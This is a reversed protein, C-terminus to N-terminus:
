RFLRPKADKKNLLYRISTHDTYIIIEAGVLYFCFKDIAFVMFLLENETTAYTMQTADLTRSAYYIVHLKKEKRQGLLVGVAYDSADCMIKFPQSWDPPQMIPTSILAHKLLQFSELCKEDFIFEVDKMLLGIIPKTIKSFDEIFNRYFGAHGLFSRIERVNKPPKLNEIVEIKAKDM